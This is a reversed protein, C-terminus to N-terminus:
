KENEKKAQLKDSYEEFYKLEVPGYIKAHRAGKGNNHEILRKKVDKSFGTYYTKGCDVIYVYWM